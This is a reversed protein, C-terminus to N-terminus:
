HKQKEVSILDLRLLPTQPIFNNVHFLYLHIHRSFLFDNDHSIGLHERLWNMGFEMNDIISAFHTTAEDNMSWGGGACNNFPNPWSNYYNLYITLFSLHLYSGRSRILEYYASCLFFASFRFCINGSFSYRPMLGLKWMWTDTLSNYMYQIGVISSGNRSSSIHPGIKPIYLDSVSVHIHFNPSLGRQEWFLFIFVSNGSCHPGRMFEGAFGLHELAAWMGLFTRSFIVQLTWSIPPEKPATM